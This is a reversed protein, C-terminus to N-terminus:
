GKPTLTLTRRRRYPDFGDHKGKRNPDFDMMSKQNEKM